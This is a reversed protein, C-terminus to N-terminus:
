GGDYLPLYRYYVELTLAALATVVARGAQSGWRSNPDWSGEEDGGRRQSELLIPRLQSNWDAWVPGHHQYLALAGYYWFYYDRDNDRPLNKSLYAASEQMTPDDRGPEPAGPERGLLQRSFMGEAVMAPKPSTNQYGYEGGSQGGGVKDLWRRASKFCEDPVDLGGMRASTIAMVQWGFVSTDGGEGPRYRWGGDGPNQAAVIFDISRQAPARFREDRTLAFAEALAIGGMGQDYMDGPPAGEEARMDGDEGVREILWELGRNASKGFEDGAAPDTGWALFALAALSTAAVDHGAKGGFRDIKWRGDPEQHRALWRLAREIAAETEPSGGLEPLARERMKRDRLLYRDAPEQRAELALGPEALDRVSPLAPLDLAPSDLEMAMSEMAAPLVEAVPPLELPPPLPARVDPAEVQATAVETLESDPTADEADQSDDDPGAVPEPEDLRVEPLAPAEAVTAVPELRGPRFREDTSPSVPETAEWEPAAAAVASSVERMEIEPLPVQDTPLAQSAASAPAPLPPLTPSAERIDLALRERALADAQLTVEQKEPIRVARYVAESVIYLSFLVVLGAHVLLSILAARVIPRRQRRRPDSQVREAPDYVRAREAVVPRSWDSAPAVPDVSKPVEAALAVAAPAVAAPAVAAPAVPPTKRAPPVPASGAWQPPDPAPEAPPQRRPVAKKGARYGAAWIAGAVLVAAATFRITDADIDM